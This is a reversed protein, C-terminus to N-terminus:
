VLSSPTDIELCWGDARWAFSGNRGEFVAVGDDSRVLEYSEGHNDRSDGFRGSGWVSIVAGGMMM